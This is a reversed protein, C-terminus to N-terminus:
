LLIDAALKPPCGKKKLRRLEGVDIDSDAFLRAEVRTLGYERAEKYRRYVAEQAESLDPDPPM